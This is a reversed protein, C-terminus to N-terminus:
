IPPWPYPRRHNAPHPFRPAALLRRGRRLLARVEAPLLMARLSAFLPGEQTLEDMVRAVDALLPDPIPEGAFDWIVTRLKDEVHFCIGHDIVWLRGDTALLLHGGKRDANNALLDFVALPRLSQKQEPTLTFFHVQPDHDVFLQLSGPGFPANKHRYVTPPILDWGLARSLRYAAVERRALSRQPFDWLPSEGQTPKYVVQMSREEHVLTGLFTRNSSNLFQGQLSIDGRHLALLISEQTLPVTM